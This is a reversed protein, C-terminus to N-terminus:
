RSTSLYLLPSTLSPLLFISCAVYGISNVSTAHKRELHKCNAAQWLVCVRSMRRKRLIGFSSPLHLFTSSELVTNISNQYYELYQFDTKDSLLPIFIIFM